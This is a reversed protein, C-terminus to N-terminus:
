KRQSETGGPEKAGSSPQEPAGGSKPKGLQAALDEAQERYAFAGRGALADQVLQRARDRHGQDAELRALWYAADRSVVGQAAVVSLFKRAEEPKRQLYCIWGLTALIEPNRPAREANYSALDFAGSLKAPDNEDVLTLALQNRALLNSPHEEILGEFGHEATRYDKLFRAAVASWYQAEVSKPDLKCAARFQEAAGSSDGSEFLWHGLALKPRIDKPADAIAQRLSKVTAERDGADRYLGAMIMSLPPLSADVKIAAELQQRADDKKDEAFLAEALRQRAATNKPQQAILDRLLTEAAPWQKRAKKVAAMGLKQQAVLQAKRGADGAFGKLLMEGAAYQVEADSVRRELMAIDGFILHPEPDAPYEQAALELQEKGPGRDNDSFYLNAFMVRPPALQPYKTAAQKLLKFAGQPDGSDFRHIANTVEPPRNETEPPAAVAPRTEIPAAALPCELSAVALLCAAVLCFTKM